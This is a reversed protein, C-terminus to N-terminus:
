SLGPVQPARPRRQGPHEAAKPPGNSISRELRVQEAVEMGRHVIRVLSCRAVPGIWATPLSPFEWTPIPM